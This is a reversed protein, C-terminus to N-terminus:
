DFAIRSADVRSIEDMRGAALEKEADVSDAIRMSVAVKVFHSIGDRHRIIVGSDDGAIGVRRVTRKRSGPPPYDLLGAAALYGTLAEAAYPRVVANFERMHVGLLRYGLTKLSQNPGYYGRIYFEVQTRIANRRAFVGRCNQQRELALTTEM